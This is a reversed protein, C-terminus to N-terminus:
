GADILATAEIEVGVAMADLGPVLDPDANFGFFLRDALSVVSIRLGHRFGIEAISHLAEVPAGLISVPERPGPVNSVSVAFERPSREIAGVIKALRPSVHALHEVTEELAEADHREKRVTTERNVVRLREVPDSEHLPLRVSFFSDRNSADDGEHHLSVPVRVRVSGLPGGHHTAWRRMAGAVVSLVADNLTAGALKGAADHLAPLPVESIAIRRRGGIPGDFPSRHLSAAFERDILGALHARRRSEDPDERHAPPLHSPRDESEERDWLMLRAFRMAATGDALAHHIRWVLVSGGSPRPVVDITWLPRDRDLRQEFLSAIEALEAERDPAAPLGSARVHASLDFAADQVWMPEEPTGGLKRTLEPTLHIRGSIRERLEEVGPAAEGLVVIKCTHGAISECELDLIARDAPQLPIGEETAVSRDYAGSRGFLFSPGPIEGPGKRFM